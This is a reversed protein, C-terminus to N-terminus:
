RRCKRGAGPPFAGTPSFRPLHFAFHRTGSERRSGQFVLRDSVFFNLISCAAISLANAVTCNVSLTGVFFRMLIINGAVSLAGNALHFRVLRRWVGAKDSRSRDSWTWSEHWVFNHLVAAEVALATGILYYLGLWGTLVALVSLQVLIGLAGVSNFVTWRRLLASREWLRSWWHWM